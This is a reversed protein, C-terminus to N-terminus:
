TGGKYRLITDAHMMKLAENPGLNSKIQGPLDRNNFIAIKDAFANCVAFDPCCPGNGEIAPALCFHSM